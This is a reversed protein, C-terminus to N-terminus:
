AAHYVSTLAAIVHVRCLDGIYVTASTWWHSAGFLRPRGDVPSVRQQFTRHPKM